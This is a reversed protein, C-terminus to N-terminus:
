KEEKRRVYDDFAKEGEERWYDEYYKWKRDFPHKTWIRKKRSTFRDKPHDGRSHKFGGFIIRALIILVVAQWFTITTLGFLEPMLWNWLWVVVYGFLLAIAVAGILGLIVMGIIRLIYIIKSEDNRQFIHAVM